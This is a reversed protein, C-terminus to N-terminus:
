NDQKQKNLAKNATIMLNKEIIGIPMEFINDSKDLYYIRKSQNCAVYFEDRCGNSKIWEPCLVFNNCKYVVGLCEKMLKWYETYKSDPGNLELLPMFIYAGPFQAELKPKLRSEYEKMKQIDYGSIPHSVYVINDEM